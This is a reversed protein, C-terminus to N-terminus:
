RPSAGAISLTLEVADSVKDQPAGPNIGFDSRKVTFTSRIVLLDGQTNPLRASLKDKLYTIKVPVRVERTIGHLTLKGTLDGTVDPGARKVNDIQTAEFSLQPFQKADMWQAGQLHDQMMPNGVRMSATAVTIAGKLTTPNEPDYSVTGAIGTATGSISELPADLKFLVNNVGKADKFDFSQPAAHTPAVLLIACPLALLRLKM